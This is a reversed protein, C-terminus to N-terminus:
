LGGHSILLDLGNRGRITLVVLGIMAVIGIVAWMFRHMRETVGYSRLGGARRIRAFIRRTVAIELLDAQLMLTFLAFVSGVGLVVSPAVLLSLLIRRVDVLTYLLGCATPAACALGLEDVAASHGQTQHANPVAPSALLLAVVPSPSAAIAPEHHPEDWRGASMLRVVQAEYGLLECASHTPASQGAGIRRLRSGTLWV